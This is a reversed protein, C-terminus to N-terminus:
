GSRGDSIQRVGDELLKRQRILFRQGRQCAKRGLSNQFLNAGLELMSQHEGRAGVSYEVHGRRVRHRARSIRESRAAGRPQDQGLNQRGRPIKVNLILFCGIKEVGGDVGDCFGKESANSPASSIESWGSTM